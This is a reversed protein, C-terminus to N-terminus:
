FKNNNGTIKRMMSIIAEKNKFNNEVVYKADIEIDLADELVSVLDIAQFSDLIGAEFLNDGEYSIIDENFEALAALVKKEM